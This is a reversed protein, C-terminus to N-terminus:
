GNQLGERESVTSKDVEGLIYEVDIVDGSVLEYWHKIIYHRAEQM